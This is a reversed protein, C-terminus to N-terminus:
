MGKLPSFFFVDRFKRLWRQHSIQWVQLYRPYAYFSPILEFKPRIPNKVKFNNAKSPQNEGMAKYQLFYHICKKEAVRFEIEM